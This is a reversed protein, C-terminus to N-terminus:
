FGSQLMFVLLFEPIKGDRYNVKPRFSCKYTSVGGFNRFRQLMEQNFFRATEPNELAPNLTQVRFFFLFIAILNILYDCLCSAQTFIISVADIFYIGPEITLVMSKQLVRTTRLSRLGPEEIRKTGQRAAFAFWNLAQPIIKGAVQGRLATHRNGDARPFQRLTSLDFKLVFSESM